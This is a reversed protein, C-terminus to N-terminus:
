YGAPKTVASCGGAPRRRFGSRADTPTPDLAIAIDADVDTALKLLADVAGPEEPNPFAVTPFDPDPAFQSEVVHVDTLEARM